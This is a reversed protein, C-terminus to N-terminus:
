SMRGVSILSLRPEAAFARDLFRGPDLVIGGAMVDAIDKAALKRFEPWETAVVLADAGHAAATSDSVLTVASRLDDPLTTVKPDFARVHAGASVLERILEISLSRRLTNTGPKYALGLVGITRGSLPQLMRRLHALAWQGHARNSALVGNIVPTTLGRDEALSRLFNVDRALTGGAFAPGPRIYANPGVRPDSRLGAEVEAADAGVQECITAIENSFTVSVALFANLAHKVMEASEVSTWILNNCFRGLLSSLAPRAKENRIGIVVRSPDRFVEIARGLRLNEPSCAFEVRRGRAKQAFSRELAGISGAPLQASVLVIAGDRLHEFVAEVRNTVAAVDAQDDDDVPTDHCVWIIDADGVARVDTTFALNGSDLGSRILEALGPEFLPPEGRSLDAIRDANDDIGVTVVGAAATCAATVTGLHWLGLVAVKM